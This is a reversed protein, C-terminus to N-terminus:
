NANYGHQRTGFVDKWYSERELVHGDDVRPPWYELLAYSFNQRLYDLGKNGVLEAFDSTAPM